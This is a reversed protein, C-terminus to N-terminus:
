RRRRPVSLGLGARRVASYHTTRHGQGGERAVTGVELLRGLAYRVQGASLGSADVLDARTRPQALLSLLLEAHKIQVASASEAPLPAQELVLEKVEPDEKPADVDRANGGEAGADASSM